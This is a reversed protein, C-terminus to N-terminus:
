ESRKQDDADESLTNLDDIVDQPLDVDQFLHAELAERIETLRAMPFRDSM